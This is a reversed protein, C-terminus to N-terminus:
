DSGISVAAEQRIFGPPRGHKSRIELWGDRSDVVNVKIGKGINAIFESNESPGSFVQTPGVTQFAGRVRPAIKIRPKSVPEAGPEIPTAEPTSVTADTSVAVETRLNKITVAAAIMLIAVGAFAAGVRWNQVISGWLIQSAKTEKTVQNTTGPDSSGIPSGGTRGAGTLETALGAVTSTENKRIMADVSDDEVVSSVKGASGSDTFKEQMQRNRDIVRAHEAQLTDLQQRLMSLQRQNEESKALREQWGTIEAGLRRNEDALEQCIRETERLRKHTEEIAEVQNKGESLERELDRILGELKEQQRQHKMEGSELNVRQQQTTERKPRHTHSWSRRNSRENQKGEDFCQELLDRSPTPLGGCPSAVHKNQVKRRKAAPRETNEAGSLVGLSHDTKTKKRKCVQLFIGGRKPFSNSVLLFNAPRVATKGKLVPM